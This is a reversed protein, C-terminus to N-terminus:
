PRSIGFAFDPGWGMGYALHIWLMAMPELLRAIRLPGADAPEFGLDRVIATVVGKADADDGCLFMPMRNQGLRGDGLHQAGLTNFCKVVRADPVWSAVEEAASTTHGILLGRGLEEPGGMLIPNVADILVKGEVDGVSRVASEAATWPTDLILIDSEGALESIPVSRAGPAAELLKTIQGPKREGFIVPYGARALGLGLAGGVNGTGIIGIRKTKMKDLDTELWWEAAMWM